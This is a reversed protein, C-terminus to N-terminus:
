NKEASIFEIADIYSQRKRQEIAYTKTRFKVVYEFSKKQQQDSLKGKLYLNVKEILPSFNMLRDLQNLFLNNEVLTKIVRARQLPTSYKWLSKYCTILKSILPIMKPYISNQVKLAFEDKSYFDILTFNRTKAIKKVEDYIKEGVWYSRNLYSIQLYKEDIQSILDVDPPNKLFGELSTQAKERSIEIGFEQLSSQFQDYDINLEIHTTIGM